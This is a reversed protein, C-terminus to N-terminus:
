LNRSAGAFLRRVAPEIDVLPLTQHVAGLDIASRPMGFVASTTEDQAINFGGMKRLAVMGQAGDRGMGTLLVAVSEPALNSWALSNFLVDVSPRCCNVPPSETLRIRDRHIEMHVNNPAVLALGKELRDGERALRVTFSSERDLWEAFGKAFGRAIHQVILVRAGCDPPLDKMLRMVAKPGGTSAGVALITRPGAPIPQEEPPHARTRKRFHHMVRVRALFKVKEILREAIEEFAETIVGQPKEMVDLAGHKIANFASMSHGPEVTASLM